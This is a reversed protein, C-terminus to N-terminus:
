IQKKKQLKSLLIGIILLPINVTMAMTLAEALTGSQGTGAFGIKYLLVSFFRVNKNAALAGMGVAEDFVGWSGIICIVTAIMISSFMQPLYIHWFRQLYNAGDVKSADITEAPISLLGGLFIAMNFGAYRWGVMLPFAWASVSPNKIDIANDIVGIKLLLLNISGTDKAFLLLMILGIGLGSIMYPIYIITFLPKKLKSKIEYMLLALTMGFIYVTTYNIVMFIATKKVAPLFMDVMPTKFINVFNQLGIYDIDTDIFGIQDTFLIPIAILFPLITLSFYIIFQPALFVIDWALENRKRKIFSTEPINKM